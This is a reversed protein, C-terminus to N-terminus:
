TRDQGHRASCRPGLEQAAQLSTYGEGSAYTPSHTATACYSTWAEHAVACVARERIHYHEACPVGTVMLELGLHLAESVRRLALLSDVDLLSAVELLVDHSLRLVHAKPQWGGAWEMDMSAMPTTTLLKLNHSLNPAPRMRRHPEFKREAESGNRRTTGVCSLHHRKWEVRCVSIRRKGGM